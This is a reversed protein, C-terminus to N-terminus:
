SMSDSLGNINKILSEDAEVMANYLNLVRGNNVFPKILPNKDASELLITVVESAKLDPNHAWVLAASGTVVPTAFSTGISGKYETLQLENAKIGEEIRDGTKLNILDILDNQKISNSILNDTGHDVLIVGSKSSHLYIPKTSFIDLESSETILSGTIPDRSYIVESTGGPAAIDVSKGYNSYSAMRTNAGISGVSIVNDFEKALSAWGSFYKDNNGVYDWYELDGGARGGENGAAIVVMVDNKQAYKFAKRAKIFHRRIKIDVSKSSFDKPSIKLNWGLSMNIVKAGNDVAYYIADNITNLKGYKLNMLEAKWSVGSIGINNNGRGGIIGAVHTGHGVIDVPSDQDAAWDWGHIDDKFGNKDDDKNNNPIEDKNIWLNNKLDDHYYDIGSDIVAIPIGKSSTRISWAEPAKIDFNLASQSAKQIDEQNGNFLYWQKSLSTDDPFNLYQNDEPLMNLIGLNYKSIIEKAPSTNNGVEIIYKEGKQAKFFANEKKRKPKTSTEFPYGGEQFSELTYIRIDVDKTLKNLSLYIDQDQNSKFKYYSKSKGKLKDKIYTAEGEPNSFVSSINRVRSGAPLDSKNIIFTNKSDSKKPAM